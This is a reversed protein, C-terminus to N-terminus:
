TAPEYKFFSTVYVQGGIIKAYEERSLANEACLHSYAVNEVYVFDDYNKGDGPIFTFKGVRSLLLRPIVSCGPGFINGPRICCTLLGNLGNAKIVLKEAEAKSEAYTDIFKDPYPTSENVNFLGHVGDFVVSNSSTYILRKVKCINCAEIVNMTGEINVLQHLKINDTLPDPAATHFVTVVGEFANIMQALDRVDASVYAARGDQLAAQLEVDTDDDPRPVVAPALDTVRVRWEGSRLLAAVLHRAMFGRGGTVACWRAVM